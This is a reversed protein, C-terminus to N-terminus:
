NIRSLKRKVNKRNEKAQEKIQRLGTYHLIFAIFKHIALQTEKSQAAIFMELEEANRIPEGIDDINPEPVDTSPPEQESTQRKLIKNLTKGSM